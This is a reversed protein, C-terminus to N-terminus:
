TEEGKLYSAIFTALSLLLMTAIVGQLILRLDGKQSFIPNVIGFTATVVAMNGSFRHWTKLVDDTLKM